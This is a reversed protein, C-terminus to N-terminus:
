NEPASRRLAASHALRERLIEDVARQIRQLQRRIEPDDSREAIKACATAVNEQLYTNM